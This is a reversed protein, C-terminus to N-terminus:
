QTCHKMDHPSLAARSNAQQKSKFCLLCYGFILKTGIHAGRYSYLKMCPPVNMARYMVAGDSLYFAVQLASHSSHYKFRRRAGLTYTCYSSLIHDFLCCCCTKCGISSATLKKEQVKLYVRNGRGDQRPPYHFEVLM